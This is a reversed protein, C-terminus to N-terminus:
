PLKQMLGELYVLYPLIDILHLIYVEKPIVLEEFDILKPEELNLKNRVKQWEKCAECIYSEDKVNKRKICAFHYWEYCSDCQVM